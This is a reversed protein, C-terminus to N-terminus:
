LGAKNLEDLLARLNSYAGRLTAIYDDWAAQNNERKHLAKVRQLYKASERYHKRERGAIAREALERYLELARQPHEKEALNATAELYSGRESKSLKELLELGRTSQRERLAMWLLPSVRKEKALRAEVQPRVQNWKGLPAAIEQLLEYHGSEPRRAFLRTAWELAASSEGRRHCFQALWEEYGASLWGTSDRKVLDELLRRAEEGAGSKELADAFDCMLGPLAAFEKRAAAIAEKIKGQRVQLFIKQSPTGLVAILENVEDEQNLAQAVEVLFTVLTERRYDSLAGSGIIIAGRIPDATGELRERVRSQIEPWDSPAAYRLLVGRAEGSLDMGGMEIDALEADLLHFIWERRAADPLGNQELGLAIHHVCADVAQAVEVFFDEDEADEMLRPIFATIETLLAAHQVATLFPEGRKESAMMAKELLRADGSRLARRLNRRLTEEDGAEVPASLELLNLLSPQERIMEAILDVLQERKRGRLMEPISPLTDFREPLHVFCLLLAVLHKCIGDGDYPCDCATSKIGSAGLTARLEYPEYQSGLCTAFLESGIRRLDGLADDALLDEGRAFVKGTCLGLIDDERLEPIETDIDM